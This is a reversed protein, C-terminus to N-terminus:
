FNKRLVVMHRCHIRWSVTGFFNGIGLGLIKLFSVFAFVDL